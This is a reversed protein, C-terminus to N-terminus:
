AHVDAKHRLLVLLANCSGCDAAWHLPTCDGDERAEMYAGAEMLVDVVAVLDSRAAQHLSTLGNPGRSMVDARHELLANTM